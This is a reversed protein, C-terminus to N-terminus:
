STVTMHGQVLYKHIPKPFDLKEDNIKEIARNATPRWGRRRGFTKKTAYVM